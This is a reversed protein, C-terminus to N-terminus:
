RRRRGRANKKRRNRWWRWLGAIGLGVVVGVAGAVIREERLDVPRADKVAAVIAETEVKEVPAPTTPKEPEEREAAPARTETPLLKQAAEVVEKEEEEEDLEGLGEEEEEEEEVEEPTANNTFGIAPEDEDGYLDNAM